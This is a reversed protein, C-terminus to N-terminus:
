AATKDAEEWGWVKSLFREMDVRKTKMEVIWPHETMRWPTARRKPEKELSSVPDANRRCIPNIPFNKQKGASSSTSSGM